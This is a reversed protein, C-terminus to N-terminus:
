HLAGAGRSDNGAAQPEIPPYAAAGLSVRLRDNWDSIIRQTAAVLSPVNTRNVDDMHGSDVLEQIVQVVLAKAGTPADILAGQHWDAVKRVGSPFVYLIGGRQPDDSALPHLDAM